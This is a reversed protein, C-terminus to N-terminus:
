RRRLGVLRRQYKGAKHLDEWRLRLLGKLM